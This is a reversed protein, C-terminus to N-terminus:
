NSNVRNVRMTRGRGIDLGINVLDEFLRAQGECNTSELVSWDISNFYCGLERKKSDCTDRRAVLKRSAGARPRVPAKPRLVVVNHDSLGFPPLIEVSNKDYMSALNTLVLDLTRDGRTAKDILQKLKFQSALRSINLHNFDGYLMLGCGPHFGEIVSLSSSLYELMAKDDVFQPHYISGVVLCPVGRPLRRPRLWVWLVEFDGNYLHDLTKYQIGDKVYLGVGGHLMGNNRNRAIFHYNPIHLDDVSSSDRLWTETFFGLDPYVDTVVCCVEDIKPALSMTNALLLSVGFVNPNVSLTRKVTTLNSANQQRSAMHVPQNSRARNNNVTLVPTPRISACRTTTFTNLHINLSDEGGTHYNPREQVPFVRSIPSGVAILGSSSLGSLTSNHSVPATATTTTLSHQRVGGRCGRRTSKHSSIGLGNLRRWLDLGITTKRSRASKLFVSSYSLAMPFFCIFRRCHCISVPFGYIPLFVKVKRLARLTCAAALRKVESAQIALVYQEETLSLRVLFEGFEIQEDCKYNALLQQIKEYDKKIQTKQIDDLSIESLPELIMTRPMPFLPFNFRCIKHGNKKCTKSHSHRQLNILDGLEHLDAKSTVYNGVFKAIENHTHKSYEPADKIWLSCHIHPSCRQRFEARYFLDLIEGIPHLVCYIVGGLRQQRFHVSGLLSVM